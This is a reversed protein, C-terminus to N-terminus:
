EQKDEEESEVSIVSAEESDDSNFNAISEELTECDQQLFEQLAAPIETAEELEWVDSKVYFLTTVDDRPDRASDAVTAFDVTQISFDSAGSHRSFEVAVWLHDYPPEKRKTLYYFRDWSAIVGTLLYPQPCNNGMVDQLIEGYSFRDYRNLSASSDRLEAIRLQTTAKLERLEDIAKHEHETELFKVASDLFSALSIGQHQELRSIQDAVKKRAELSTARAEECELIFAQYEQTFVQPYFREELHIGLATNAYHEGKILPITLVDGLRTVYVTEIREPEYGWILAFFSEYLNQKIDDDDLKFQRTTATESDDYVECRFLRALEEGAATDMNGVERELEVLVADIFEDLTQVDQLLMLLQRLFARTAGKTSAFWRSGELFAVCRQIEMTFRNETDPVRVAAGKFWDPTFGYTEFDVSFLAARFAPVQQLITLLPALYGELYRSSPLLVLPLFTEKQYKRVDNLVDYAEDEYISWESRPETYQSLHSSIAPDIQFETQRPPLPPADTHTVTGTDTDVNEDHYLSVASNGAGLPVIARESSAPEGFLIGIATELNDNSSNLAGLADDRSFGMEMLQAIKSDSAM